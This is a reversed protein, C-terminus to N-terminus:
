TSGPLEVNLGTGGSISSGPVIQARTSSIAASASSGMLHFAAFVGLAVAALILAYEVMTQGRAARRTVRARRRAANSLSFTM